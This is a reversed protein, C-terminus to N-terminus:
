ELGAEREGLVALQRDVLKRMALGRALAAAAIICVVPTVWHTLQLEALHSAFSLLSNM